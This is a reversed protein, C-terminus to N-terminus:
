FNIYGYQCDMSVIILLALSRLKSIHNPSIEIRQDLLFSYSYFMAYIGSDRVDRKGHVAKDEMYSIHFSVQKNENDPTKKMQTWSMEITRAVLQALRRSKEAWAKSPLWCVIEYQLFNHRIVCASIWMDDVISTYVFREYEFIGNTQKSSLRQFESLLKGVNVFCVFNRTEKYKREILQFFMRMVTVKVYVDVNGMGRILEYIDAYTVNPNFFAFKNKHKVHDVVEFEYEVFTEQVTMPRNLFNNLNLESTNLEYETNLCAHREKQWRILVKNTTEVDIVPYKCKNCICNGSMVCKSCFHLFTKVTHFAECPMNEKLCGFWTNLDVTSFSDKFDNCNYILQNVCRKCYKLFSGDKRQFVQGEINTNFCM